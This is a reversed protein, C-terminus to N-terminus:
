NNSHSDLKYINIRGAYRPVIDRRMFFYLYLNTEGPIPMSVPEYNMLVALKEDALTGWPFSVKDGPAIHPHGLSFQPMLSFFYDPDISISHGPRRTTQRQRYHKLDAANLGLIDM